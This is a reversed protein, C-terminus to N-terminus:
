DLEIILASYPKLLLKKDLEIKEGALIDYGDKSNGTMEEFRDLALLKEAQNNNLIVMVKEDKNYRFFVYIEDEPRFHRLGGSHIVESNKRWGLLKKNFDLAEKERGSLGLQTFVNKSDGPWGGPFDQRVYQDGMGEKDGPLIIEDGYYLQPIGRTTMILAMLMKYKRYDEGVFTFFRNKDHNSAFIKNMAPKEFLFDLALTKYIENISKGKTFCNEFAKYLSFDSVSPLSVGPTNAREGRQWYSLSASNHIMLEGVIYFDPYENLVANAWEAMRDRDPYFYTDMRIGDLGAYEIWWISNQIFYRGLFENQLNMDPMMKDFWGRVQLNYDYESAYPDYVAYHNFSSKTYNEFQNIWDRSPLDNMWWHKGGCHNFVMDKVVKLGKDHAASVWKRYSENTGYRKDIKYFDTIAYGHFSHRPMNNELVPNLWLTTIGLETFYDFHEAIGELDGGHRGRLDERNFKDPMDEFEDNTNDGNAFRDPMILYMVDSPDLGKRDASGPERKKLSYLVSLNEEGRSFLIEFDGPECGDSIYFDIFLYNPSDVKHYGELQVGSYNVSPVYEGIKDAHVLLQLKNEKMGTWWFPPEIKGSFNEAFILNFSLLILLSILTTRKM